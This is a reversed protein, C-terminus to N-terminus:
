ANPKVDLVPLMENALEPPLEALWQIVDLEAKVMKVSPHDEGLFQVAITYAEESLRKADAYKGQKAYLQALGHLLGATEPHERGVKKIYIDRAEIYLTEADAYKGQRDYLQALAHLTSAADPHDRGVTQNIITLSKQYLPEAAIYNGQRTYMHALYHLTTATSPHVWGVTKIKIDLADDYNKEADAYKGQESYLYALDHLAIAMDHHTRGVTKELIDLSERYLPEADTYQAQYEYVRGTNNLLAAATPTTFAEQKIYDRALLCHSLYPISDRVRYNDGLLTIATNITKIAQEKRVYWNNSGVLLQLVKGIVRHLSATESTKNWDLLAFDMARQLAAEIREPTNDAEEGVTLLAFPIADPAFFAARTLMEAADPSRKELEEFAIKVTIYTSIHDSYESIIDTLDREKEQLYRTLYKPLSLTVENEAIVGGAQEIALPLGDFEACLREAAERDAPHVDDLSQTPKELARRLLLEVAPATQMDPLPIKVIHPDKHPRRSTILIRSAANQPLFRDCVQRYEKGKANALWDANDLVLLVAQRIDMEARVLAIREEQPANDPLTFGLAPDDSVAAFNDALADPTPASIWFVGGAYEAGHAAVYEQAMRTKGIGPRGYLLVRRSHAFAERIQPLVGAHDTFYHNHEAGSNNFFPHGLSRDPAFSPLAPAISPAAPLVGHSQIWSKLRPNGSNHRHAAQILESLRGQAQAWGLLRFVVESTSGTGTISHLNESLGYRVMRELAAFTPFADLLADSLAKQQQGNLNMDPM